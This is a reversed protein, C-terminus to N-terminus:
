FLWLPLWSFAYKRNNFRKSAVNGQLRLVENMEATVSGSFEMVYAGGPMPMSMSCGILVLFEKAQGDLVCWGRGDTKWRYFSDGSWLFFFPFFFFLSLPFSLSLFVCLVAWGLVCVCSLEGTEPIAM